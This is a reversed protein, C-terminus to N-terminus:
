FPTKPCIKLLDLVMNDRLTHIYFKSRQGKCDLIHVGLDLMLRDNKYLDKAKVEFEIETDEVGIASRVGGVTLSSENGGAGEFSM